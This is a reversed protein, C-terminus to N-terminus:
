KYNLKVKIKKLAIEISKEPKIFNNESWFKADYSYKNDIFINNRKETIKKNFKKINITDINFVVTELFIHHKTYFSQKKSKIKIEIDARVHNLMYKDNNLKYSIQYKASLTKSKIKGNKKIIFGIKKESANFNYEFNCAIITLSKTEIIIEGKYLTTKTKEKQKFSIVYALKNGYNVIDTIKYSYNNTNINLLFNVPHKIIDLKLGSHLGGKLKVLLTDTNNINTIKRSKVVSIKESGISAKYPAKYIKIVAESFNMIEDKKFVGERYFATLNSVKNYYNKKINEIAKELIKLPDHSRIIVEQISVLNETLKFTNKYNKLKSIPVLLTEYALNAIYLTSDKLKKKIKLNFRGNKNSITGITTNNIGVSAFIIPKNTKADLIQGSIEIISDNEILNSNSFCHTNNKKCIIIHDDIVKYNLSTDAIIKNLITTVSSNKLQLTIKKNESIYKPNYTFFCNTQKSIQNLLNVLKTNKANINLRQQLVSKQSYSSSIRLIFFLSILLTKFM